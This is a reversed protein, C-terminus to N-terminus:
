LLLCFWEILCSLLSHMRHGNGNMGRYTCILVHECFFENPDWPFIELSVGTYSCFNQTLISVSETKFLRLIFVLATLFQLGPLALFHKASTSVLCFKLNEFSWLFIKRLLKRQSHSQLHFRSPNKFFAVHFGLFDVVCFAHSVKVTRRSILRKLIELAQCSIRWLSLSM